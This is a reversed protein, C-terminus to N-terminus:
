SAELRERHQKPRRVFLLRVLLTLFQIITQSGLKSSGRVRDHFVIPVDVVRLAPNRVLLELLFKFGNSKFGTVLLQASRCGVLGSMPDTTKICFLMATLHTAILSIAIRSGTWGVTAGGDTYRSGVVVDNGAELKEFMRPLYCPHHSFDADMVVVSGSPVHLAGERVASGLGRVRVRVILSLNAYEDMMKKVIARTSDSSNDDVIIISIDEKGLYYFISHVLSEINKEENLTPIIVTRMIRRGETQPEKFNIYDIKFSIFNDNM